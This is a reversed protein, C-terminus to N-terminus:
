FTWILFFSVSDMLTMEIIHFPRPVLSCTRTRTCTCRYRDDRGLNRRALRKIDMEVEELLGAWGASRFSVTVVSIEGVM